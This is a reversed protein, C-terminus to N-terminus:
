ESVTLLKIANTDLVCGGTRKEVYFMTFGKRTLPDRLMTMSHIDSIVYGRRWNGFAIPTTGAGIGPMDEVEEVPFGLLTAPQGASLGDRWLYEGDGSKLKRVSAMTTSNMLWAVGDGRRYPSRLSYVTDILGDATIATAAGSKVTQLTGFPRVDDKAASTPESLFGKPKGAVGDGVVFATGEQTSFEDVVNDIVFGAIDYKSDAILWNTVPVNAYLGTGKPSALGITPSATQTREGTETVWGSSAGRRNIPISFDPSSVREVRALRRLPSVNVLQDVIADALVSPITYGGDPDSVGSMGATFETADGTRIYTALALRAQKREYEGANGSFNGAGPRNLRAELKDVTDQLERITDATVKHHQEFAAMIENEM